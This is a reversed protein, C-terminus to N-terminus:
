RRRRRPAQYAQPTPPRSIQVTVPEEPLNVPRTRTAWQQPTAVQTTFQGTFAGMRPARGWRAGGLFTNGFLM